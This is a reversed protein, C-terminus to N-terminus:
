KVLLNVKEKFQGHDSKNSSRLTIYQSFSQFNAIFTSQIHMRRLISRKIRVDLNEIAFTKQLILM